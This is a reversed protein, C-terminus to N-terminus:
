AAPRGASRASNWAPRRWARACAAQPPLSTRPRTCPNSATTDRIRPSPEPGGGRHHAGPGARGRRPPPRGPARGPTVPRAQWHPREVPDTLLFAWGEREGAAIRGARGFVQQAMLVKVRDLGLTTDRVAVARAPLNVGAAVTSTAVLVEAERARFAREAEQKYPWGPLPPTSRGQHLAAGRGRRRRRGRGHHARRPPRSRPRAGPDTGRTRQRLLCPRQRRRRHGAGGPRDRRRAAPPAAARHAPRGAPPHGRRRERRDGLPRRDPHGRQGGTRPHAAGGTRSRADRLSGTRCIAEFKETTAVWVDASRILETDVASEGTPRVVRLGRNRRLRLERDLQDTLSRQPVLWDAKCGRADAELAAVM